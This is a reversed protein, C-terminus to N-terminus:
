SMANVHRKLRVKFLEGLEHTAAAQRFWEQKDIPNPQHKHEAHGDFWEHAHNFKVIGFHDREDLM